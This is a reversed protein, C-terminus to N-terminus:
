KGGHIWRFYNLIEYLPKPRYKLSEVCANFHRETLKYSRHLGRHIHGHINYWYKPLDTVPEHTFLVSIYKNYKDKFRRYIPEVVQFGCDKYWTVSHRDHNGKILFKKGILQECYSIAKPKTTLSLDGLVLINDKKTVTQNWRRITLENYDDPRYAHKIISAHGFHLDSIIYFQPTLNM